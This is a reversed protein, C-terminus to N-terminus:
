EDLAATLEAALRAAVEDAEGELDCGAARRHGGGGYRAAITQVDGAEARLSIRWMGEDAEKMFAAMRVGDVSMAMSVFGETDGM